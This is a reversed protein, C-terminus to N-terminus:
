ESSAVSKTTRDFVEDTTWANGRWIEVVKGEPDILATALAHDLKQGDKERFLRFASAVRDIVAPEATAFTWNKFDAGVAKGYDRLVEPTDFEPDITISLLRVQDLLNAEKLRSQLTEFNSSMLPCFDPVPCRTFIFTLVTFRNKDDSLRVPKKNQDTLEINPVTSGPELREARAAQPTQTAPAAPIQAKGIVEFARAYSGAKDMVFEFKVEDGVTLKGFDEDSPIAFPMTMAPMLGPIEEHRIVASQNETYLAVVVGKTDYVQAQLAIAGALFAFVAFTFERLKM